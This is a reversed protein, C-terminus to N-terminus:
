RVSKQVGQEVADRDIMDIVLHPAGDSTKRPSTGDPGVVATIRKRFASFSDFTVVDVPEDFRITLRTKGGHLKSIGIVEGSFHQRLYRGSLRAGSKLMDVRLPSPQLRAAEARLTNWDRRGYQAALLELSESHSITEGNEAREARLKRAQLKLEDVLPVFRKENM